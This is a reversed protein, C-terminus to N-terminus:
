TVKPAPREDQAVNPGEGAAVPPLSQAAQRRRQIKKLNPGIREAVSETIIQSLRAEHTNIDDVFSAASQEFMRPTYSDILTALSADDLGLAQIRVNLPPHTDTPHPIVGANTAAVERVVQPHDGCAGAFFAALNEYAKGDWLAREVPDEIGAWQPAYATAVTLAGALAPASTTKAALADARLERSRSIGREIHMFGKLYWGLLMMSPILALSAAAGEDSESAGLEEMHRLATATGAYVPYFRRSVVTDAGTFHAFEHAIIADAQEPALLRLLPASLCLTRGRCKRDVTDVHAETVYFGTGLELIVNDPV